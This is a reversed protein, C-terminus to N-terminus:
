QDLGGFTGPWRNFIRMAYLSSDLQIRQAGVHMLWLGCTGGHLHLFIEKQAEKGSGGELEYTM